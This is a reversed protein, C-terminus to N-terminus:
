GLMASRIEDLLLRLKELRTEVEDEITGGFYAIRQARFYAIRERKLSEEAVEVDAINVNSSLLSLASDLRHVITIYRDDALKKFDTVIQEDEGPLISEIAFLNVSGGSEKVTAGVETLEEHLGERSPLICVADQLYLVGLSQLKRWVQLRYRSPQSPIRYVLLIWKQESIQPM